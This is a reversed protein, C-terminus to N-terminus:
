SLSLILLPVVNKHDFEKSRTLHLCLSSQSAKEEVNRGNLLGQIKPKPTDYSDLKSKEGVTVEELSKEFIIFNM